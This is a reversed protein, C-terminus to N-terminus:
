HPPPQSLYSSSSVQNTVTLWYARNEVDVRDENDKKFRESEKYARITALGSLSESFHSYLSSRLVSDLRQVTFIQLRHKSSSSLSLCVKLERASARYFAAAWVYLLAIAAVGILFWPLVIAILIIAGIINALTASFMRLADGLLNDITDIDKSFRNMIRGLPTTEFFSM